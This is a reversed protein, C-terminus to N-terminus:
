RGVWSKPKPGNVKNIRHPMPPTHPKAAFQVHDPEGHEAVMEAILRDIDPHLTFWERGHSRHHAFRKHLLAEDKRTGPKTAMLRSDPPYQRMRKALDATWGIKYYGGSRVVYITGVEPASSRTAREAPVQLRQTLRDIEAELSAIRLEYGNHEDSKIRVIRVKPEAKRALQSQIKKSLRGIAWRHTECLRAKGDGPPESTCRAALPDILHYQCAGEITPRLNNM